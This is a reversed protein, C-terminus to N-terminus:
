ELAIEIEEVFVIRALTKADPNRGLGTTVFEYKMLSDICRGTKEIVV